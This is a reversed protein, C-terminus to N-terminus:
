HEMKTEYAHRADNACVIGVLAERITPLTEHYLFGV